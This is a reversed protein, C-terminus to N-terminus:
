GHGAASCRRRSAIEVTKGALVPAATRIEPDIRTIDSRIPQCREVQFIFATHFDGHHILVSRGPLSPELLIIYDQRHISAVHLADLLQAAHDALSGRSSDDRQPNAAITLDYADFHFQAIALFTKGVVHPRVALLKLEIHWYHGRHRNQRVHVQRNGDHDHVRSRAATQHHFIEGRLQSIEESSLVPLTNQNARNFFSAAGILGAKAGTVHDDLDVAFWNMVAAVEAM